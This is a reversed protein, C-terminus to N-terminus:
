ITNDDMRLGLLFMPQSSAAILGAHSRGNPVDELMKSATATVRSSDWVKQHHERTGEPPPTDHGQSWMIKAEDQYSTPISSQIQPPLIHCAFESCAAASALSAPPALQVASRVGLGGNKVPLTAQTWTPDAIRIGLGRNSSDPQTKM